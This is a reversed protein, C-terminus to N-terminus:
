CVWGDAFIAANLQYITRKGSKSIAVSIHGLKALSALCRRVSRRDMGSIEALRRQGATVINGRVLHMALVGYVRVDAHSIKPDFLVTAPIRVYRLPNATIM